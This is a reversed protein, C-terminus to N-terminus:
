VPVKSLYDMAARMREPDHDLQGIATNCHMCLLGRIQGTEHDHDVALWMPDVKAVRGIPDTRKCIACGGNQAAHMEWYQEITIGYKKYLLHKRHAFSTRGDDLRRKRRCAISCIKGRGDTYTKGPTFITNCVECNIPAPTPRRKKNKQQCSRSCFQGGRGDAYIRKAIFFEECTLCQRSEM